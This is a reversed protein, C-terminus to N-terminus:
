DPGSRPHVGLLEVEFLLVANAPVLNSIGAARYGLHPGARIRRRGGVRMGEVGYELAPIVARAGLRFSALADQQVLDGRRLSLTYRIEVTSGWTAEAGSGLLSDEYLVGGRGKKM